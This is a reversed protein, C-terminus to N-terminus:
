DRATVELADMEFAVAPDFGVERLWTCLRKITVFRAGTGSYLLEFRTWDGIIAELIRTNGLGGTSQLAIVCDSLAFRADFDIIRISSQNPRGVRPILLAPGRVVRKTACVDVFRIPDASSRLDTSHFFRIGSSQPKIDVVSLAGRMVRVPMRIGIASDSKMSGPIGKVRSLRRGLSFRVVSVRIQCGFFTQLSPGALVELGFNETLYTRINYDIVNDLSYSPVIAILEGDKALRVLSRCIFAFARSCRFSKGEFEVSFHRNGRMSFPPNLLVVDHKDDADDNRCGLSNPQLFDVLHLEAEPLRERVKSLAGADIDYGILRASPWRIKAARLLAGDGVAFDAVSRASPTSCALVLAIALEDPTYYKDIM